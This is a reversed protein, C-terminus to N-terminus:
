REFCFQNSVFAKTMTVSYLISKTNSLALLFFHLAISKKFTDSYLVRFTLYHSYNLITITTVVYNHMNKFIQVMSFPHM